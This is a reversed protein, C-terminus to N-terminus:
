KVLKNYISAFVYGAIWSFIVATVLGLLFNGPFATASWIKELDIGHFWSRTIAMSIEPFIAIGLGCFVYVIGMFVAFANAFAGINLKM